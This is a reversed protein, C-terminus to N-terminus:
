RLYGTDTWYRSVCAREEESDLLFHSQPYFLNCNLILPYVIQYQLLMYKYLSTVTNALIATTDDAHQRPKAEKSHHLEKKRIRKGFNKSEFKFM